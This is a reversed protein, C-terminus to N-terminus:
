IKSNQVTYALSLTIPDPAADFHLSKAVVSRGLNSSIYFWNRMLLSIERVDKLFCKEFIKRSIKIEQQMYYTQRFNYELKTSCPLFIRSIWIADQKTKIVQCMCIFKNVLHLTHTKIKEGM